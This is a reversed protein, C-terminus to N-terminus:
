WGRWLYKNFVASPLDIYDNRFVCTRSEDLQVNEFHGSINKLDDYGPLNSIKQTTRVGFLTSKSKHSTYVYGDDFTVTTEINTGIKRSHGKQSFNIIKADEKLTDKKSKTGYYIHETIFGYVSLLIFLIVLVYGM